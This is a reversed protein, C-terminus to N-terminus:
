NLLPWRRSRETSDSERIQDKPDLRRRKTELLDNIQKILQLLKNSDQEVSAQECLEVLKERESGMM